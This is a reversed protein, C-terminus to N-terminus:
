AVILARVKIDSIISQIDLFQLKISPGAWPIPEVVPLGCGSIIPAVYFVVEDVLGEAFAHALLSGGGEVLVSLVGRDALNRLVGSLPENTFILTRDRYADTFVHSGPPLNGTRTVIARWPQTQGVRLASGRVTLSPNDARLTGAGVLVAECHSRLVMADARAAEGTLWQGEGPPLTIKGDLSMGAKAIVWPLGTTTRKRFPRLIELCESELVGSHCSIGCSELERRARGAHSPNPDDIGWVVRSLGAAVLATTCPPTRGHTSCPELTIHITAGRVSHGKSAADQLAEIEAHPGGAQHHFGKGLIIGESSSLVAGVPPNPATLGIGLRAESLAMRMLAEDDM